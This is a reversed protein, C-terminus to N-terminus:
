CHFRSKHRNRPKRRQQVAAQGPTFALISYSHNHNTVFLQAEYVGLVHKLHGHLAVIRNGGVVEVVHLLHLSDNLGTDLRLGGDDQLNGLSGPLIGVLEDQAVHGASGNLIGLLETCFDRNDQVQIM